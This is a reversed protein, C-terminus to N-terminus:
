RLLGALYPSVDWLKITNDNSGSALMRGDPSFAVSFVSDTHGTLTCLERGSSVEWLKITNDLSGSALAFGNPSFAVSALRQTHGNLARIERGSSIKWLRATNDSSGSALTRGDSSFAVSLVWSTHGTLTRLKRGNSVEWLTITKDDSGAALTRGDPSFAVSRVWQAHGTLARIERGSFVEWVKISNDWSGSALFRGDPSFAVSYVKNTHGVLTFLQSGSPMEWLKITKDGSGSALTRGDPSFAVSLVSNAHAAHVSIERASSIEWLKITNDGSGSVLLEGDPSFAISHVWRTHAALTHASLDRHGGRLEKMRARADAAHGGDPWAALFAKLEVIQTSVAVAAWADTEARKRQEARQAEQAAEELAALEAQAQLLNDGKPFEEIFKRLMDASTHTAPNAWTLGELKKRAYRETNGGAFRALQDRFEDPNTSDKIFDWNALEEAKRIEDPTLGALARERAAAALQVAREREEAERKKRAEEAAQREAETRAARVAEAVVIADKLANALGQCDSKFRDPRLGIANKRALAHISEPLIDARPFGAGGVLVPIVRKGQDLAAKIEIAVFDDLDGARAALLEAWRPGIIALLVDCQAVQASLVEIFDDGPKIHGEVDMFLRDPGFEEELRMYLATTFGPDDGRRYNIFIKGSSDGAM